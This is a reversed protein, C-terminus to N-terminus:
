CLKRYQSYLEPEEKALVEIYKRRGRWNSMAAQFDAASIQQPQCRYEALLYYWELEHWIIDSATLKRVAALFSTGLFGATGARLISGWISLLLPQCGAFCARLWDCEEMVQRRLLVAGLGGSFMLGSRLLYLWLEQCDGPLFLDAESFDHWFAFTCDKRESPANCFALSLNEQTALVTVMKRLKEGLLVDGPLLWQVYDGAAKTSLWEAMNDATGASVVIRCSNRYAAISQEVYAMDRGTLDFVLIEKHPYDQGIAGALSAQWVTKDGLFPLVISVLRGQCIVKKEAYAQALSEGAAFLNRMVDTGAFHTYRLGSLQSVPIYAEEKHRFLAPQLEKKERMQQVAERWHHAMSTYCSYKAVNNLWGVLVKAEAQAKSRWPFHAIYLQTAREMELALSEGSKDALVLHSGQSLRIDAVEAAFRGVVAKGLKEPKKERWCPRVLINEEGLFEGQTLHRVWPLVYVKDIPMAQLVDRCNLKPMAPLLFEDADLPLVLDAKEQQLARYLLQTLVESQAQEAMDVRCSFVPLGEEALSRLIDGTGDTSSHDAILLCDAFTLTHRVFSEIIDAENKVMSIVIIKNM